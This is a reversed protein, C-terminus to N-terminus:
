GGCCRKFKKGSGCPCPDNRGVSKYPNLTQSKDGVLMEDAAMAVENVMLDLQGILDDLQPLEAYGAAKMQNHTEQEDIALSLTTLLASLMRQTGDAIPSQQWHAEVVPWVSMFGEAFDARAEDDDGTLALASYANAKLSLYQQNIREVLAPKLAVFDDGFLESAWQEPELPKVTLNAALVAGEIFLRSEGQYDAPLQILDSM